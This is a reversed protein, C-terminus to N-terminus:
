CKIVLKYGRIIFDKPILNSPQIVVPNEETGEGQFDIMIPTTMGRGLSKYIRIKM